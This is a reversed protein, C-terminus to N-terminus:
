TKWMKEPLLGETSNVGPKRGGFSVPLHRWVRIKQASLHRYLVADAVNKQYGASRENSIAAARNEQFLM